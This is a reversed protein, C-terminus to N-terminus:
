VLQLIHHHFILQKGFLALLMNLAQNLQKNVQLSKVLYNINKTYIINVNHMIYKDSVLIYKSNSNKFIACEKTLSEDLYVTDYINTDVKNNIFEIDQKYKGDFTQENVFKIPYKVIIEIPQDNKSVIPVVQAIQNNGYLFTGNENIKLWILKSLTLSNSSISEAKTYLKIKNGEKIKCLHIRQVDNTNKECLLFYTGALTDFNNITGDANVMRYNYFYINTYTDSSINNSAENQAQSYGYKFIIKNNNITKQIFILQDNKLAARIDEIETNVDM